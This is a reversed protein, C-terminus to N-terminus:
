DSARVLCEFQIWRFTLLVYRGACLYPDFPPWARTIPRPRPRPPRRCILMVFNVVGPLGSLRGERFLARHSPRALYAGGRRRLAVCRARLLLCFARLELPLWAPWCSCLLHKTTIHSAQVSSSRSPSPYTTLVYHVTPARVAASSRRVLPVASPRAHRVCALPGGSRPPWSPQLPAEPKPRRGRSVISRGCFAGRSSLRKPCCLM